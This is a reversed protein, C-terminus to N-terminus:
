KIKDKKKKISRPENSVSSQMKDGMHKAMKKLDKKSIPHEKFYLDDRKKSLTYLVDMWFIKEERSDSQNFIDKAIYSSAIEVRDIFKEQSM